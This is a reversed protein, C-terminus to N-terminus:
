AHTNKPAPPRHLDWLDTTPEPHPSPSVQSWHSCLVPFFWGTSCCHQYGLVGVGGIGKGTESLNTSHQRTDRCHALTLLGQLALHVMQHAAVRDAVVEGPPKTQNLAVRRSEIGDAQELVRGHSHRFVPVTVSNIFNITILKSIDQPNKVTSKSVSQM